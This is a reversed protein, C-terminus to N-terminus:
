WGLHEINYDCVLSLNIEYIYAIKISITTRLSSNYFRHKQFDVLILESKPIERVGGM